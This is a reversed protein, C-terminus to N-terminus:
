FFLLAFGLSGLRELLLLCLPFPGALLCVVVLGLSHSLWCHLLWCCFWVGGAWHWPCPRRLVLLLLAFGLTQKAGVAM